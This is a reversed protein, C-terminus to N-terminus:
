VAQAGRRLALVLYAAALVCMEGAGVLMMGRVTPIGLLSALANMVAPASALGINQGAMNLSIALPATEPPVLASCKMVTAPLLISLGCGFCAAGAMFLAPGEAAYVLLFGALPLLAGVALSFRDLRQTIKGYVFGCAGGSGAMVATVAGSLVTSRLGKEALLVSTNLTFAYMCCMLLMFLIIYPLAGGLGRAGTRGPAHARREPRSGRPLGVAAAAVLVPLILFVAYLRSWHGRALIGGLLSFVLAGFQGVGTNLGLLENREQGSFYEAILASSISSVGYSCGMFAAAVLLLTFSDHFVLPLASLSTLCLCLILLPKKRYREMLWGAALTVGIGTLCPLTMVQQIRILPVEPFAEALPAIIPSLMTGMMTRLAILLIVAKIGAATRREM